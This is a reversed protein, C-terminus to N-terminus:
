FHKGTDPHRRMVGGDRESVLIHLVLLVASEGSDNRTDHREESKRSHECQNGLWCGNVDVSHVVMISSHTQRAHVWQQLWLPSTFEFLVLALEPATGTVVGESAARSDVRAAKGAHTVSLLAFGAETGVGRLKQSLWAKLVNACVSVSTLLSKRAPGRIQGGTLRCIATESPSFPNTRFTDLACGPNSGEHVVVTLELVAIVLGSSPARFSVSIGVSAPFGDIPAVQLAWTVCRRELVLHALMANAFTEDRSFGAGLGGITVDVDCVNRQLDTHLFEILLSFLFDTFLPQPLRRCVIVFTYKEM